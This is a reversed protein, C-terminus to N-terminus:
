CSGGGDVQAWSVGNCDCLESLSNDYYISGKTTSDCINIDDTPTLRMISSVELKQIPSTTGIGVRGAYPLVVLIDDKVVLDNSLGRFKLANINSEFYAEVGYDTPYTETWRLRAGSGGSNFAGDIKITANGGQGVHLENEPSTTGIGLKNGVYARNPTYLGWGDPSNTKGYVGYNV